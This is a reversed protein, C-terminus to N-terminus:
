SDTEDDSGSNSWRSYEFARERVFVYLPFALLLALSLVYNSWNMVDRRVRIQGTVRPNSQAPPRPPAPAGTLAFLRELGTTTAAPGPRAFAGADPSVVLRYDGAPVHDFTVTSTPDGESWAEGDEFGSYHEMGQVTDFSQGTKENVLSVDLELWDNQLSASTRIEVNGEKPLTFRGVTLPKDRDGAFFHLQAAAVDAADSMVCGGMQLLTAASVGVLALKWIKEAKGVHPNPANAGIFAVPRGPAVGFAKEVEEAAVFEGHSVIIEQGTSEAFIRYPPCVYDSSHAVDETSARWYFEGGVYSTHVTGESFRRYFRDEFTLSAGGIGPVDRNLMRALTWNGGEDILFRYGHYPNFLLYETWRFEGSQDHREQFGVVEWEIGGLKGRRGLEIAASRARENAAAIVAYSDNAVDILSSCFGCKATISQGVARLTVSGGCSPCAFVKVRGPPKAPLAPMREGPASAEPPVVPQLPPGPDAPLDPLPTVAM